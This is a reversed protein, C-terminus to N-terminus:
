GQGAPRPIAFEEIVESLDFRALRVRNGSGQAHGIALDKFAEAAQRNRTVLPVPAPSIQPIVASITGWGGESLEQWVFLEVAAM